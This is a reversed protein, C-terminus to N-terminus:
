GVLAWVSKGPRLDTLVGWRGGTIADVLGLGRGGDDEDGAARVRPRVESADHVELRVGAGDLELRTEIDWGCGAAHQLSNTLLESLVLEAADALESRGWEALAARLEQRALPVSLPNQPWRGTLPATSTPRVTVM